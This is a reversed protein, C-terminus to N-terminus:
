PAIVELTGALFLPHPAANRAVIDSELRADGYLLHALLLAPVQERAEYALTEPLSAAVTSLHLALAARLGHLAHYLEDSADVMLDDIEDSLERLLEAAFSASDLYAAAYREAAAALAASRVLRYTARVTQRSQEGLDSSAAEASSEGSGLSAVLSGARRAIRAVMSRAYPNADLLKPLGTIRDVGISATDAVSLTTQTLDILNTALNSPQSLAGNLATSLEEASSTVSGITGIAGSVSGTIARMRSSVADLAGRIPALYREPLSATNARAVFDARAAVLTDASASRVLESTDQRVRLVNGREEVVVSFRISCYGGHGREESTQVDGVVRAWLEGRSPLVLAGPGQECLTEELENRYLDFDPGFLYAAVQFQDPERGLDQQVSGDRGVLRRVPVRRGKTSATSEVFFPVGKFSAPQYRDRWAM